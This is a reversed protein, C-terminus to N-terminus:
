KKDKYISYLFLFFFPQYMKWIKWFPTSLSVQISCYDSRNELNQLKVEGSYQRNRETPSVVTVNIQLPGDEPKLDKGSAPSFSWIGWEPYESVMWELKSGPDGINKVYITGTVTSGPKVKSWSLIGECDLDPTPKKGVYVTSTDWDCVVFGMSKATVTVNNINEGEEIARADFEIEIIHWPKLFTFTWSLVNDSISPQMTANGAYELCYPLTDNVVLNSLTRNGDNHVTIKFRVKQDYDVVVEEHWTEGGDKSVKKEIDVSPPEIAFITANDRDTANGVESTANVTVNNVKVGKCTINVSFKICLAECYKLPRDFEWILKNEEVIPEIPDASGKIYELCEPLYDTVVVKTLNSYGCNHVSIKFRAGSCVLAKIKDVWEKKAPDWVKKEVDVCTEKIGAVVFALDLGEGEHEHGEPYTLPSWIGPSSIYVANNNWRLDLSTTKWGFAFDESPKIRMALWYITGEEQWFAEERDIHFNYQYIRRHNDDLWTETLPEYWDQL